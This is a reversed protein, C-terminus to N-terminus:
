SHMCQWRALSQGIANMCAWRELPNRQLKFLLWIHFTFIILDYWWSIVRRVTLLSCHPNKKGARISTKQNSWVCRNSNMLPFFLWSENLQCTLVYMLSSHACHTRVCALVTISLSLSQTVSFDGPECETRLLHLESAWPLHTWKFVFGPRVPDCEYNDGYNSESEGDRAQTLGASLPLTSLLISRFVSNAQPALPRATLFLHPRALACEWIITGPTIINKDRGKGVRMLANKTPWMAKLVISASSQRNIYVLSRLQQTVTMTNATVRFLTNSHQKLVGDTSHGFYDGNDSRVESLSSEAKCLTKEGFWPRFHPSKM